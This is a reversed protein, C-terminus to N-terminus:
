SRGSNEAAAAPEDPDFGLRLLLSVMDIRNVRVAIALLGGGIILSAPSRSLAFLSLFFVGMIVVFRQYWRLWRILFQAEAGASEAARGPESASM